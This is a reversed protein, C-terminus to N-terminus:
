VSQDFGHLCQHNLRNQLVRCAVHRPPNAPFWCTLNDRRALDIASPFAEFPIIGSEGGCYCRPLVSLPSRHIAKGRNEYGRIKLPNAIRWKPSSGLVRQNLTLM